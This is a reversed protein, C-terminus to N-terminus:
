LVNLVEFFRIMDLRDSEDVGNKPDGAYQLCMDMYLRRMNLVCGRHSLDQIAQMVDFEKAELDKKMEALLANLQEEAPVIKEKKQTM